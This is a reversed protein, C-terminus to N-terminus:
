EPDALAPGIRAADYVPVNQVIMDALPVDDPALSRNILATFTELCCSETTYYAM